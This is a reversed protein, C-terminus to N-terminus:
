GSALYAVRSSKAAIIVENETDRQTTDRELHFM